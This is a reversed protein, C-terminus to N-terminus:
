RVSEASNRVSRDPTSRRTRLRTRLARRAPASCSRRTPPQRVRSTSRTPMRSAVHSPPGVDAGGYAFRVYGDEVLDAFIEEFHRGLYDNVPNMKLMAVKGENFLAYVVDLAAISAINGAALVVAVDGEPEERAYFTAVTQELTDITVDRQMRVEASMGSFLIRDHALSPFVDVTVQGSPLSRVTYGDLVPVGEALRTLTTRLDQIISLVSYPGGTWEEGALPHEMALGKAEVADETWSRAVRITHDRISDLYGIKDAIPLRAWRQKAARLTAM